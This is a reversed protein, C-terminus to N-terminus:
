QFAASMESYKGDLSASATYCEFGMQVPLPLSSTAHHDAAAIAPPLLGRQLSWAPM